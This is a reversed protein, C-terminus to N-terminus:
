LMPEWNLTYLMPEWILTYLMLEWILTTHIILCEVLCLGGVKYSYAHVWFCIWCCRVVEVVVVVIVVVVVVQMFLLANVRSLAVVAVVEVYYDSLLMNLLLVYIYGCLTICIFWGDVINECNVVNNKAFLCHIMWVSIIVFTM